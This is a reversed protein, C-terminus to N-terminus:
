FFKPVWVDESCNPYTEWRIWLLPTGAQVWFGQRNSGPWKERQTTTNKKQRERRMLCYVFRFRGLDGNEVLQRDHYSQRMFNFFFILLVAVGIEISLLSIKGDAITSWKAMLNGAVWPLSFAITASLVLIAVHYGIGSTTKLSDQVNLLIKEVM